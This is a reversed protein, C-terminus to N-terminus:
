ILFRDCLGKFDNKLIDRLEREKDKGNLDRHKAEQM